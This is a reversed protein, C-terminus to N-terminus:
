RYRDAKPGRPNEQLIQYVQSQSANHFEIMRRALGHFHQGVVPQDGLPFGDYDVPIVPNPNGFDHAPPLSNVGGM